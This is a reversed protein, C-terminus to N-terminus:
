ANPKVLVLANLGRTTVGNVVVGCKMAVTDTTPDTKATSAAANTFEGVCVRSIYRWVTTSLKVAPSAADLTLREVAIADTSSDIGILTIFTANSNPGTVIVAQNYAELSTDPVVAGINSTSGAITCITAGAHQKVTVAQAGLNVANAFYAGVVKDFTGATTVTTSSDAVSLSVDETKGTGSLSGVITLVRGRDATVDAAQAIDLTVAGAPQTFSTAKGAAAATLTTQATTYKSARGAIGAKASDGAALPCDATILHLGACEVLGIAGSAIAEPAIGIVTLSDLAAVGSDSEVFRSAPIASAATMAELTQLIRILPAALYVTRSGGAAILALLDTLSGRPAEEAVSYLGTLSSLSTTAM